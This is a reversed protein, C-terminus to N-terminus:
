NVTNKAFVRWIGPTGSQICIWASEGGESPSANYVIDGRLWSGVTPKADLWRVTNENIISDRGNEYKSQINNNVFSHDPIGDATRFVKFGNDNKFNNDFVSISNSSAINIFAHLPNSPADNSFFNDSIIVECDKFVNIFRSSGNGMKSFTNNSIVCNIIKDTTSSIEGIEVCSFIINVFNNNDIACNEGELIRAHKYNSFSPLTLLKDALSVINGSINTNKNEGIDIAFHVGGVQTIIDTLNGYGDSPLGYGGFCDKLNNDSVIIDINGTNSVTNEPSILIATARSEKIYNDSVLVGKFGTVGIGKAGSKIISNNRININRIEETTIPTWVGNLHGALDACYIGDDRSSEFHNNSITVDGCMFTLVGTGKFERINCNEVKFGLTNFGAIGHVTTGIINIDKIHVNHLVKLLVGRYTNYVGSSASTYLETYNCCIHNGLASSISPRNTLLSALNISDWGVYSFSLGKVSVNSGAIFVTPFHSATFDSPNLITSGYGSFTIGDHKIILDKAVFISNPDSIVVGGDVLYDLAKQIFLTDDSGNAKAGFWKVRVEGDHVLNAFGGSSLAIGSGDDIASKIRKHSAGDFLNNYGWLQVRDGDVLYPAAVMEAVTNFDYKNTLVNVTLTVSDVDSIYNRIDLTRRYKNLGGDYDPITDPTPDSSYSYLIEAGTEGLKAFIGIERWSYAQTFTSNDFPAQIKVSKDPQVQTSTIPFNHFETIVDTLLKIDGAYVGSGIKIKTFNLSGLEAQVSALLNIGENTLEFKQFAM